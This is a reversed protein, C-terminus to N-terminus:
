GRKGWALLWGQVVLSVLLLSEKPLPMVLPTTM